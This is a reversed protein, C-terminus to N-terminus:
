KTCEWVRFRRDALVQQVRAFRAWLWPEYGLFANAVLYLKGGAKLVRAAEEIFFQATEFHLGHGQHFPPNTVVVDITATEVTTAGCVHTIPIDPYGNAALTEQASLVARASVDTLTVHAGRRLATLGVLGTGCGLDLVRAGSPIQMGAILTAAGDDLRDPAFTGTYGVLQTTVGDVVVDRETRQVIPLPFDGDPRRALGAHYGGKRVVIGAQGFLTRAQRLASKVGEHTAGVFILQGGPRLMAAMLRLAEDQLERGRPLHLFAAECTAPELGAFDAQAFCQGAPLRNHIFSATLSQGEAANETWYTLAAGARAIWLATAIAGPGAVFVHLADGQRAAAVNRAAAFLATNGVGPEPVGPLRIITIPGDPLIGTTSQLKM